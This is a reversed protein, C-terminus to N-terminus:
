TKEFKRNKVLLKKNKKTKTMNEQKYHNSYTKKMKNKITFTLLNPSNKKILFYALILNYFM